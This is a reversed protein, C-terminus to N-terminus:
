KPEAVLTRNSWEIQIGTTFNQYLYESHLTYTGPDLRLDIVAAVTDEETGPQGPVYSFSHAAGHTAMYVLSDGLVGEVSFGMAGYAMAIDATDAWTAAMYASLTVIIQGTATTVIVDPGAGSAVKQWDGTIGAPATLKGEVSAAVPRYQRDHEVLRATAELRSLNADFALLASDTQRIWPQM